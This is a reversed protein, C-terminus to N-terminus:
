VEVVPRHSTGNPNACCRVHIRCSSVSQSIREHHMFTTGSERTLLLRRRLRMVGERSTECQM